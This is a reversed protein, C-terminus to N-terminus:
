ADRERAACPGHLSVARRLRDLDRAGRRAGSRGAPLGGAHMPLDRQARQRDPDARNERARVEDMLLRGAMVLSEKNALLVRKGARVAALTSQLGAAGVIAAMVVQVNGGSVAAALAEEGSEVRVKSGCQELAARAQAAAQPNVLVVVDPQFQRAQEVVVEWSGYAGLAAVRFRDPHLGIVALTSRGISGTSGLIAIGRPTSM